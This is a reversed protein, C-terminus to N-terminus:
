GGVRTDIGRARFIEALEDMRAASPTTVGRMGYPRHLRHFKGSGNGHYPLLHVRRVCPNSRAIRAAHELSARDDTFSPVIPIRLWVNAGATALADLNDLIPALPLGVIVRHRVPDTMKLDFLFLDILPALEILLRRSVFGCTDVATSLRAARAASLLGRLFAPQAFPEGGSVTIGGGSEEFFTRDRSVLDIVEPCTMKTGAIQRAEAPCADACAGCATCRSPDTGKPCVARCSGCGVCREPFTM